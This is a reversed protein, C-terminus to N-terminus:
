PRVAKEPTWPLAIDARVFWGAQDAGPDGPAVRQLAAGGDVLVGYERYEDVIAGDPVLLGADLLARVVAGAQAPTLQPAAQRVVQRARGSRSRSGRPATQRPGSDAAMM